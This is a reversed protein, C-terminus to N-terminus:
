ITALKQLKQMSRDHAKLLLLLAVISGILCMLMDSQTDWIYGQTGLFADGVEGSVLAIWWEIFEYFASLGLTVMISIFYNWRRSVIIMKRGFFEVLVLVPTVGQMLHGLKDYNNRTWGLIESAWFGIPTEAYTYIGGYMLVLSHLFLLTYVLNSFRFKRYTLVLVITGLVAPFVELAWIGWGAQNLLGTVVLALIELALILKPYSIKM